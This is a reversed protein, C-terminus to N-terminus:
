EVGHTRSWVIAEHKISGLYAKRFHEISEERFNDGKNLGAQLVYMCARLFDLGMGERNTFTNHGHIRYTALVDPHYEFRPSTSALVVWFIWDEKGARTICQFQERDLLERRFLACHIPLSFGREWRLLFDEPTFAFGALTSPDLMRRGTGDADCLEYECVAIDIGTDRIMMDVQLDIKGPALLDDADLFQIFKGQSNHIGNYRAGAQGTNCQRLLRFRYRGALEEVTSISDADTSGDDVVLIEMPYSCAMMASLIADELYYGYNYCPIVVSVLPISDYESDLPPRGSIEYDARLRVRLETTRPDVRMGPALGGSEAAAAPPAQPSREVPGRLSQAARQELHHLLPNIGRLAADPNREFYETVDFRPNPDLGQAVGPGMFHTLPNLGSRRVEPYRDLYYSTDFDPHPNHGESAGRKLYHVLPNMSSRAVDPNRSAYYHLNFLPHPNRGEYAGFVFFHRLPDTGSSAVDPNRALYYDGDFLGSELVQPRYWLWQLYGLAKSRFSIRRNGRRLLRQLNLLFDLVARLPWTLRWSRSKRLAKVAHRSEQLEANTWSLEDERTQLQLSSDALRKELEKGRLQLGANEQVRAALEGERGALCEALQRNETELWTGEDIRAALEAGLRGGSEALNIVETTLRGVEAKLHAAEGRVAELEGTLRAAEADRASIEAQPDTILTRCRPFLPAGAEDIADAVRLWPLTGDGNQYAHLVSQYDECELDLARASLPRYRAANVLFTLPHPYSLPRGSALFESPFTKAAHEKTCFVMLNQSYWFEVTHDGWFQRRLVDCPLYGYQQFLVAWFELWQENIHGV